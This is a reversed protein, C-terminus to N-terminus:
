GHRDDRIAEAFRYAMLPPVANGVQRYKSTKSGKFKFWDPFSQLRACERVTLRRLRRENVSTLVANGDEDRKREGKTLYPNSPEVTLSPEKLKEEFEEWPIKEGDVKVYGHPQDKHL